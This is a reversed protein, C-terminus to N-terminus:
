VGIQHCKSCSEDTNHLLNVPPVNNGNEANNVPPVSNKEKETNQVNNAPPDIRNENEANQVPDKDETQMSNKQEDMVPDPETNLMNNGSLKKSKSRTVRMDLAPPGKPKHKQYPCKPKSKVIKEDEMVNELDLEEGSSTSGSEDGFM